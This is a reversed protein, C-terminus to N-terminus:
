EPLPLPTVEVAEKAVAEPERVHREDWALPRSRVEGAGAVKMRPCGAGDAVPCAGIEDLGRGM